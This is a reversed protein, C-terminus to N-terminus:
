WIERGGERKETLLTTPSSTERDMGADTFSSLHSTSLLYILEPEVSTRLFIKTMLSDSGEIFFELM